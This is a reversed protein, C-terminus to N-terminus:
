PTARPKGAWAHGLSRLEADVEDAKLFRVPRSANAGARASRNHRALEEKLADLKVSSSRGVSALFRAEAEIEAPLSFLARAEALAATRVKAERKRLVREVDAKVIRGGTPAYFIGVERAEVMTTVTSTSVGLRRAAQAFTLTKV